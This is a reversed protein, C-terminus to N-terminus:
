CILSITYGKNGKIKLWLTFPTVRLKKHVPHKVGNLMVSDLVTSQYCFKRDSTDSKLM